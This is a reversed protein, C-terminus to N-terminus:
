GKLPHEKFSVDYLHIVSILSPRSDFLLGDCGPLRDMLTWHVRSLSNVLFAFCSLLPDVEVEGQLRLWSETKNAEDGATVSYGPGVSAGGKQM